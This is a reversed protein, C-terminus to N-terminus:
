RKKVLIVDRLVKGHHNTNIQRVQPPPVIDGPRLVPQVPIEKIYITM